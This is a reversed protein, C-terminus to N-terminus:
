YNVENSGIQWKTFTNKFTQTVQATLEPLPINKLKSIQEYVEPISQDKDADTELLLRDVPIRVLAEQLRKDYLIATGIGILLGSELVSDLIGVKRFGHYIWTQKPRHQKQIALVENWAKVCHLIVPLEFQESLLLQKEFTTMQDQLSIELNRDLGIEGIALCNPETLRSSFDSYLAANEPHIGISFNVKTLQMPDDLNLIECASNASFHTHFNLFM